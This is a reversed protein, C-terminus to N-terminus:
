LSCFFMLESLPMSGYYANSPVIETKEGEGEGEGERERRLREKGTDEGRGEEREGRGERWRM